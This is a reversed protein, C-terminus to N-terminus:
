PNQPKCLLFACDRGKFLKYDLPPFVFTFFLTDSIACFSSFRLLRDVKCDQLWFCVQPYGSTRWNNGTDVHILSDCPTLERKRRWNWWRGGMKWVRGASWDPGLVQLSRPKAVHTSDGEGAESTDLSCRHHAPMKGLNDWKVRVVTRYLPHYWEWKGLFFSLSPFALIVREPESLWFPATGANSGLCAWSWIMVLDGRKGRGGSLSGGM